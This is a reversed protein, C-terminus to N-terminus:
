DEYLGQGYDTMEIGNNVSILRGYAQEADAGLQLIEIPVSESILKKHCYQERLYPPLESIEKSKILLRNLKGYKTEAKM